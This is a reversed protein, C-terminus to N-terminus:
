RKKVGARPRPVPISTGPLPRRLDATLAPDAYISATSKWDALVDQLRSMEGVSACAELTEAFERVFEALVDAPLLRLWPLRRSLVSALRREIDHPDLARLADALVHAAIETGGRTREGRSKLSLLLAEGDRRRLVVEGGREVRAVVRTPERLFDSWTEVTSSVM